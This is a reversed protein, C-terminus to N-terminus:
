TEGPITRRQQLLYGSFVRADRMEKLVNQRRVFSTVM